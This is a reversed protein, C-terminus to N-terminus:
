RGLQKSEHIYIAAVCALLLVVTKQNMEVFGPCFAACLFNLGAFEGNKLQRMMNMLM